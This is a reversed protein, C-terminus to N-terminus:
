AAEGQSKESDEVERPVSRVERALFEAVSLFNGISEIPKQQLVALQVIQAALEEVANEDATTNGGAQRRFQYAMLSAVMEGEGTPEPLDRLWQLCHYVARRSVSPEGFFALLRQFIGLQEWKLTLVLAGGSRKLVRIQLADRGGERKAAQEAARLERLVRTLPTQHHAVVLGASASAREGMMLLLNCDLLAFGKKLELRTRQSDTKDLPAFRSVGSWADRLRAAAPLLDAVPLMALVDDGGGFILRGLYERQVIHPAVQVAFDNLAGSIAMHRAPSPPRPTTGYQALLCNDKAREDFQDRIVPHFCERFTVGSGESLLEGMRDGDMMLLGYYTEIRLGAKEEDKLARALTSRVLQRLQDAETDSEAEQAQETMALLVRADKIADDRGRHRLLLRTPLAVRERGLQEAAEAYGEATLGGRELWSDLQHALAMTHTSVVFRGFERGVADGVEGAFLTPWLRKVASLAGLHEGKKAWAPRKEAIRAWLTDSQQRYSKALQSKDTTLWEAEGSLSDRWGQEEVQGFSRVSKAAALVREALDYVAPYLVGPNPLFFETGDDWQIEQQLVRWAPSDMFGALQEPEVGFFPAMAASLQVTDQIRKGDASARILSFSVAAWHVEPFGQLQRRAQEFCYLSEDQDIGVERLLREVTRRGTDQMWRRVHDRCGEALERAQGAPVLAVFRNTLAAAFLPNTDANASRKWEAKAFLQDPLGQERLWLDVQPIGRLRPFLVADPGLVDVLPKMSEWALRALLHSGAWLDSTSRAAAIFPQVPGISMALLAAGGKEDATFAGAFASTLDLHEWISHDPVRTDAPLQPWLEGLKGGDSTEELEPGFRWFALLTKKPDGGCLHRLRDFHALSRGAIAEPETDQLGGQERLDIREGSIPHILAPEATWHLRDSLDRPWQPRDAASAWWDARQVAKHDVGRLALRERLAQVTGGEHGERTRMLILAKEGPDHLRADLKTQWLKSDTRETM